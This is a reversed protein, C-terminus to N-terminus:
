RCLFGVEEAATIGNKDLEDLGEDQKEYEDQKAKVYANQHSTSKCHTTLVEESKEPEARPLYKHCLDCYFM